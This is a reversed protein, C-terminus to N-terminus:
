LVVRLIREHGAYDRFVACEHPQLVQQAAEIAASGQGAGIELLLLADAACVKSVQLLLRRVMDLGDTGGDLALQPEHHSVTLTALQHTPIYPLNAMLLDVKIGHQILPHLLDGQHFQVNVQYKEANRRAVALAGESIDVAHVSLLPAHVALTVALAGSGTGVDVATSQPYEHAFTLAQELLLETEPRPILVDPTVIFELDYFARRGLIYPLPTGSAAQSIYTDYRQAQHPSLKEERHALLYAREVSLVEMLLLQADLHASTSISQLRQAAAKLAEQITM